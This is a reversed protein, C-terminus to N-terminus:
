LHIQNYMKISFHVTDHAIIITKQEDQKGKVRERTEKPINRGNGTIKTISEKGRQIAVQIREEGSRDM